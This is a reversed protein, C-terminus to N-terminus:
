YACTAPSIVGLSWRLHHITNLMPLSFGSMRCLRPEMMAITRANRTGQSWRFLQVLFALCTPAPRTFDSRWDLCIAPGPTCTRYTRRTLWWTPAQRLSASSSGRFRSLRNREAVVHDEGLQSPHNPMLNLPHSWWFGWSLRLRRRQSITWCM